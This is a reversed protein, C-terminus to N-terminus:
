VDDLRAISQTLGFCVFPAVLLTSHSTPSWKWLSWDPGDQAIACCNQTPFGAAINNLTHHRNRPSPTDSPCVILLPSLPLQIWSIRHPVRFQSGLRWDSGSSGKKHWLPSCFKHLECSFARSEWLEFVLPASVLIFPKANLTPGVSLTLRKRCRFYAIMM